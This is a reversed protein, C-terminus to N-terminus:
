YICFYRFIQGKFLVNEGVALYIIPSCQVFINWLSIKVKLAGNWSCYNIM